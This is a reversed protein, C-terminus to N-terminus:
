SKRLEVECFNKLRVAKILRAHFDFIWFVVPNFNRKPYVLHHFFPVSLFSLRFLRFKVMNAMYTYRHVRLLSNVARSEVSASEVSAGGSKWYWLNWMRKNCFSLLCCKWKQKSLVIDSVRCIVGCRPIQFHFRPLPRELAYEYISPLLWVEHPM